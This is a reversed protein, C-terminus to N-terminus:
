FLSFLRYSATFIAWTLVTWFVILLQGYRCPTNLLAGISQTFTSIKLQQVKYEACLKAKRTSPSTTLKGGRENMFAGNQAMARWLFGLLFIAESSGCGDHSCKFSCMFCWGWRESYSGSPYREPLKAKVSGANWPTCFYGAAATYCLM